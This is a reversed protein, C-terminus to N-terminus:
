PDEAKRKKLLSNYVVEQTLAHKFIYELDPQLSKARILDLRELGLLHRECKDKLETVRNLIDYLFSRGIVSAEQLVRRAEKELRDLRATIVGNINSSVESEQIESTLEWTGNDKRLVGSDILANIVEELYFPNGEVKNQLFRQLAKPVVDTKLLSQVMKQSETLSLDRLNIEHYIGGLASAQHSSFLTFQPRYLCILLAPQRFEMLVSRLLEITSQDAWQLDELIIVTPGHQVLSSLIMWISKRFKSQWFEPSVDAAEPYSLSFLSGVYAIAETNDGTM